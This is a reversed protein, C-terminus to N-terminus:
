ALSGMNGSMYAREAYRVQEVSNMVFPGHFVLPGEAPTGGLLMVDLRGAGTNTIVVRGDAPDYVVLQGATASKGDGIGAEGDIVYAGLEFGSPVDAEFRGAAELSVHWLLLPMLVNAPGTQDRFTGAVIRVAGGDIKVEPIATAEIRQYRPPMMKMARPLSTWLQIGHMTMEAENEALPAEAHVIGRGSTMWQAGGPGVIGEHGASDRHHNRGSLLYTVTEIGAHPHAGVGDKGPTVRFPGFHDLFVWPGISRQGQDPLARRVTFTGVPAIQSNVIREVNKM